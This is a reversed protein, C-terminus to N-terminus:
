VSIDKAKDRKYLEKCEDEKSLDCIIIESHTELLKQLELLKDERRAVLILEYGLHSLIRSMEFGIGSSAGTVLATKM